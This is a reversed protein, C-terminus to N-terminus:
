RVIREEPMALFVARKVKMATTKDFDADRLSVKSIYKYLPNQKNVGDIVQQVAAQVDIIGQAQVAEANPFIQCAIADGQQYVVAEKILPSVKIDEELQEPSVNEGSSTIILLKKRGSLSVRGEGDQFGIDGTKLWDDEFAEQTAQDDKYYATMVNPGKVLIEGDVIKLTMGTLVGGSINLLALNGTTETLAYGILINIGFTKIYAELEPRFPAGGVMIHTFREGLLMNKIETKSLTPHQAELKKLQFCIYNCVMPVMPVCTTQFLKINRFLNLFADNINVTVGQAHSTLFNVVLCFIHHIPLISLLNGSKWRYDPMIGSAQIGSAAATYTMNGHTLMVGKSKGVTGSTYMILCLRDPEISVDLDDGTYRLVGMELLEIDSGLTKQIEAAIGKFSPDYILVASDSHSVLSALDSPNLGIDLPVCVNGSNAIGLFTTYWMYSSAGLLACHVGSKGKDLLYGAIERSDKLVDYFTKEVINQDPGELYRIAASGGYAECFVGTLEKLTRCKMLRDNRATEDMCSVATNKM